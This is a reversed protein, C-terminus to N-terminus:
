LCVLRSNNSLSFILVQQSILFTVNSVNGSDTDNPYSILFVKSVCEDVKVSQGKHVYPSFRQRCYTRGDVGIISFEPPDINNQFVMRTEVGYTRRPIRETVTQPNLGFYVAGRVVALEGRPPVGIMGVKDAFIDEVRKFLYNSQGFGGVLFIAELNPSQRLQIDILELVQSVVPEFIENVLENAPLLLSGHDLGISEDTLDGIGMSAPLDLFHDESGDFEPKIINIFTEMIYEMASENIPGIIHAFKRTIYDRM